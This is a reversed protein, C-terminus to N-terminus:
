LSCISPDMYTHREILTCEADKPLICGSASPSFHLGLNCHHSSQLVGVICWHYISCSSPDAFLGTAGTRCTYNGKISKSPSNSTELSPSRSSRVPRTGDRLTGDYEAWRRRGAACNTVNQASCAVKNVDWLMGEKCWRM